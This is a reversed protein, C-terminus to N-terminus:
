FESLFLIPQLALNSSCIWLQTKQPCGKVNICLSKFNIWIDQKEWPHPKNTIYCYRCAKQIKWNISRPHRLPNRFLWLSTQSQRLVLNPLSAASHGPDSLITLPYHLSTHKYVHFPSFAGMGLCWLEFLLVLPVMKGVMEVWSLCSSLVKEEEGVLTLISTAFTKFFQTTPENVWGNIKNM